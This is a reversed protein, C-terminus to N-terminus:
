FTENTTNKCHKFNIPDDLLYTHVYVCTSVGRNSFICAKRLTSQSFVPRWWDWGAHFPTTVKVICAHKEAAWVEDSFLAGKSQSFVPRWWGCEAHLPPLTEHSSVRNQRM